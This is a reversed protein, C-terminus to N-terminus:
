SSGLNPLGLDQQAKEPYTDTYACTSIRVQISNLHFESGFDSSFAKFSLENWSMKGDRKSVGISKYEM